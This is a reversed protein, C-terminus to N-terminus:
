EDKIFVMTFGNVQDEFIIHLEDNSFLKNKLKYSYKQVNDMNKLYEIQEVEEDENCYITLENYSDVILYGYFISKESYEKCIEVDYRIGSGSENIKLYIEGINEELGSQYNWKGCIGYVDDGEPFRQASLWAYLIAIISFVIIVKIINEKKM